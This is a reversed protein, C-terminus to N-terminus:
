ERTEDFERVAPLGDAYRVAAEDCVQMVGVFEPLDCAAM